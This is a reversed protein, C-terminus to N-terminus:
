PPQDARRPAPHGAAARRAEGGSLSAPVEDGTLGLEGLLARGRHQDDMPGLGADVYAQVSEFGSLDAEQPLYRLIASPVLFRGGRDPEVTGAAIRMLTSKGSGNRGVLCIRDGPSVLLSAGELLPTGGFTLHVDDLTLLPPAM